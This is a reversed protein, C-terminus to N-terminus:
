RSSRTAKKSRWEFMMMHGTFTCGFFWLFSDQETVFWPLDLPGHRSYTRLRVTPCVDCPQDCYTRTAPGGKFSVASQGCSDPKSGCHLCTPEHTRVWKSQDAKRFAPPWGLCSTLHRYCFRKIPKSDMMDLLEIGRFTNTIPRGALWGKKHSLGFDKQPRKVKCFACAVLTPYEQMDTEFRCMILWKQCRSLNKAQIPPIVAHFRSNTNKLCVLSM